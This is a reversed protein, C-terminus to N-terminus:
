KLKLREINFEISNPDLVTSSLTSVVSVLRIFEETAMVKEGIIKKKIDNHFATPNKGMAQAVAYYSIKNEQLIDNLKM